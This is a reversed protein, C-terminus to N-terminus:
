RTSPGPTAMRCSADARGDGTFDDSGVLRWGSPLSGLVNTFGGAAGATM